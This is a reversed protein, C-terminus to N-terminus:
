LMFLLQTIIIIIIINIVSKILSIIRIFLKSWKWSNKSYKLLQKEYCDYKKWLFSPKIKRLKIAIIISITAITTEQSIIIIIWMIPM